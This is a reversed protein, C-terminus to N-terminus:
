NLLVFCCVCATRETWNWSSCGVVSTWPWLLPSSSAHVWLPGVGTGDATGAESSGALTTVTVQGDMIKRLRNNDRDAVVVTGEGDVVIGEPSNFRTGACAGDAFGSESNGIVTSELCKPSTQHHVCGDLLQDLGVGLAWRLRARHRSVVKHTIATVDQRKATPPMHSSKM